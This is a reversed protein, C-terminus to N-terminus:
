ARSIALERIHTRLPVGRSPPDHSLLGRIWPSIGADARAAAARIMEREAETVRIVVRGTELVVTIACKRPHSTPSPGPRRRRPSLRAAAEQVAQRSVDLGLRAAAERYSCGTELALEAARTSAARTDATTM